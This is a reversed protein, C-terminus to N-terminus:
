GLTVENPVRDLRFTLPDKLTPDTDAVEAVIEPASEAPDTVAVLTAPVRVVAECGLTVEKPASVLRVTDPASEAPDTVVDPLREAADSDVPPFRVTVPLMTIGVAPAVTSPM